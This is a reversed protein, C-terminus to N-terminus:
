RGNKAGSSPLDLAPLVLVLVLVLALELKHSNFTFSDGTLM